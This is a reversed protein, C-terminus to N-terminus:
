GGRGAPTPPAMRGRARHQSGYVFERFNEPNSRFGSAITGTQEYEGAANLRGIMGAGGMREDPQALNTTGGFVQSAMLTLNSARSDFQNHGILDQPRAGGQIARIAAPNNLSPFQQLIANIQPQQTTPGSVIQGRRVEPSVAEPEPISDDSANPAPNSAALDRESTDWASGPPPPGPTRVLNGNADFSDFTGLVSNYTPGAETGIGIQPHDSGYRLAEFPMNLFAGLSIPQNFMHGGFTRINPGAISSAPPPESSEDEAGPLFRRDDPRTTWETDGTDQNLPDPEVPIGTGEAIPTFPSDTAPAEVAPYDEGYSLSGLDTSLDSGLAVDNGFNNLPEDGSWIGGGDNASMSASATATDFIPDTRWWQDFPNAGVNEFLSPENDLNGPSGALTPTQVTPEGLSYSYGPVEDFASAPYTDAFDMAVHPRNPVPDTYDMASHPRNVTAVSRETDSFDMATHPRNQNNRPQEWFEANARNDQRFLNRNVLGVNSNDGTTTGRPVPQPASARSLGTDGGFMM